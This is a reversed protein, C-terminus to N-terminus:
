ALWAPTLSIGGLLAPPIVSLSGFAQAGFFLYYVAPGKSWLAYVTLLWFLVSPYDM